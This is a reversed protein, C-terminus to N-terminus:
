GHDVYEWPFDDGKGYIMVFGENINHRSGKWGNGAISGGTIYQFKDNVFGYEKWHIHGQLILKLNYNELMKFIDASNSANSKGESGSVDSFTSIMPIDTTIVIQTKKDLKELDNKLWLLEE